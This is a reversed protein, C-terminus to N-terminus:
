EPFSYFGKGLLLILSQWRYVVMSPKRVFFFLFSLYSSISLGSGQCGQHPPPFLLSSYEFRSSAGSSLQSQNCRSSPSKLSMQARQCGGRVGRSHGAGVCHSVLAQEEDTVKLAHMFLASGTIYFYGALRSTAKFDRTVSNPLSISDITRM